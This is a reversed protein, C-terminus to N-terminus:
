NPKGGNTSSQRYPALARNIKDIYNWLSAFADPDTSRLADSALKFAKVQEDHDRLLQALLRQEEDSPALNFKSRRIEFAQLLDFHRRKTSEMANYAQWALAASKRQADNMVRM